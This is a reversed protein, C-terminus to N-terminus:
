NENWWGYSKSEEDYRWIRNEDYSFVLSYLGDVKEDLVAVPLINEEVDVMTMRYSFVDYFEGDPKQILIVVPEGIVDSYFSGEWITLYDELGDGNFDYVSYRIELEVAALGVSKWWASEDIYEKFMDYLMRNEEVNYMEKCINEELIGYSKKLLDYDICMSSISQEEQRVAIEEETEDTWILNSEIFFFEMDQRKEVMQKECTSLEALCVLYLSIIIKWM